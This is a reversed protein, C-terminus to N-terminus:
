SIDIIQVLLYTFKANDLMKYTFTKTNRGETDISM